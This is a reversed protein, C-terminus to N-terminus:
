RFGYKSSTPRAAVGVHHFRDDLIEILFCAALHRPGIDRLCDVGLGGLPANRRRAALGQRRISDLFRTATGHYLADPTARTATPSQPHLDRLARRDHEDGRLPHPATQPGASTTSQGLYGVYQLANACATVVVIGNPDALGIDEGALILRRRMVFEPDEGAMDALHTLADDTITIPRGGYGRETDHLARLLLDRSRM